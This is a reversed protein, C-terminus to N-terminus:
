RAPHRSSLPEESPSWRKKEWHELEISRGSLASQEAAELVEQIQRDEALSYAWPSEGRVAKMFQEMERSYMHESHLYGPETQGAPAGYERWQKESAVYVRVRKDTLSWEIIGDESFFRGTRYPVRSVVDLMMHGVAGGELRVLLQYVDDIDTDLSTVKDKFCSVARVPGLVWTLWTAELVFQERCAGTARNSAWFARYDEWPHWDPLYQGSHTSFTRVPGLEGEEVIRKIEKILPHFRLTCSPAAVIKKEQALQMLEDLGESGVGVESFFHRRHKVADRAYQLHLEPPTCIILADPNTALAEDFQGHVEIGYRDAAEARRDARPDFGIIEGAQLGQLNRVRRTGMSGLGVVLLKM